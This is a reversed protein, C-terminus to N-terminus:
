TLHSLIPRQWELFGQSSFASLGGSFVEELNAGCGVGIVPVRIQRLNELMPPAAARGGFTGADLLVVVPRLKRRQLDDAILVLGMSTSPTVIIATSGKPMLPGHAAAIAEIPLEGKGELFALTEFIKAEQRLSPEPALMAYARDQTVLGVARKQGIFHQSLSAAISISYELTSPPLTLQPRRSFLLSELPVAPLEHALEAQVKRQADLFIWVDAQPDQEFEKVILQGRRATTPWHIRKMPDGPVYSRVGSAHPTIDASKRRIVPGGALFGPPSTFASIPFVMPLVILTKEAPFRRQIRFLGLPDSVTVRTPGIPFGGRRTLWTRAVYTQIQLPNLRTLLRSGAATPLPMENYVEVWGGPLRSQNRVEFNEKFIDGVSARLFEPRRSVRISRAVMGVWLGAGVSLMVGLYLLHTYFSASSLWRGLLGVVVLLIVLPRAVNM